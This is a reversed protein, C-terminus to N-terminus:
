YVRPFDAGERGCTLGSTFPGSRHVRARGLAKRVLCDVDQESLDGIPREYFRRAGANLGLTGPGAATDLTSVFLGLTERADFARALRWALVPREALWDTGADGGCSLRDLLVVSLRDPLQGRPVHADIVAAVLAPPARDLPDAAALVARGRAVCAEVTQTVSVGAFGLLVVAALVGLWVARRVM